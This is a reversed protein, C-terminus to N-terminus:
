QVDYIEVLVAGGVGSTSAVQVSYAGPALTILVASDLSNANPFSYAGVSAAASVLQQSGGWGANFALITSSSNLPSVRLQPDTMVGGIGYLAHLAPGGVRILVTKATAGGVVFGVDLAAGPAITTLCSLNILRPSTPTYFTTDDYIETLVFGSDGSQGAFTASYGGNVSPLSVVAASDLSAPDTLPFAGTANDATMVATQNSGWGSNSAVTAHNSERLLTLSPDTIVGPVNFVSGPGISPGVGRILLPESGSTGAGGTVFGM